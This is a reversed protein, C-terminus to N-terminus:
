EGPAAQPSALPVTFHMITGGGEGSCAWAEGGHARVLNRVISLGLGAGGHRRTPGSDVQYFAEFVRSLQDPAIGVGRDVVSLRVADHAEEGFLTEEEFPRRIPATAARVVVTTGRPSFKIANGLLNVLVRHLKEADVLVAPLPPLEARVQVEAASAPLTVAEIAKGVLEAVAHPRLALRVAGAELQSMELVHTILALLEEGRSLITRVYDTQEANLEGAIGELLMESFGIVSTLPTRLEHSVTALFNGKLEDLQRLHEVARQLEANQQAMARWASASTQLHLESTVWAAYASQLIQGVATLIAPQLGDDHQAHARRVLVLAGVRDSGAFLPSVECVHDGVGFRPPGARRLAAAAEPPLQEWSAAVGAEDGVKAHVQGAADFVALAEVGHIRWPALCRALLAADILEGLPPARDTAAVPSESM